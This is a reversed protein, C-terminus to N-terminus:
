PVQAVDELIVADGIVLVHGFQGIEQEEFHGLFGADLILQGIALAPAIQFRLGRGVPQFEVFHQQNVQATVARRQHLFDKGVGAAEDAFRDRQRRQHRFDVFEVPIAHVAFVEAIQVFAQQLFVGVLFFGARALVERRPRQDFRHDRYHLRIDRVKNLVRRRSRAAKQDDGVIVDALMAVEVFPGLLLLAFVAVAREVAHLMHLVRMPQRQHVQHQVPQIREFAARANMVAVREARFAFRQRFRRQNQGIRREAGFFAAAQWAAGIEGKRGAVFLEAKQLMDVASQGGAPAGGHHHRVIHQKFAVDARLDAAVQHVFAVQVGDQAQRGANKVRLADFGVHQEERATVAVFGVGLFHPNVVQAGVHRLEAFARLQRALVEGSEFGEEAGVRVAVVAFVAMREFAPIRFGGPEAGEGAFVDGLAVVTEVDGPELVVAGSVM